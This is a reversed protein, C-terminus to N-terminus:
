YTSMYNNEVTYINSPDTLKEPLRGDNGRLRSDLSVLMPSGSHGDVRAHCRFSGSGEDLYFYFM